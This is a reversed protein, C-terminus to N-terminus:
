ECSGALSSDQAQFIALPLEGPRDEYGVVIAWTGSPELAIPAGSSDEYRLGSPDICLLVEFSPLSTALLTAEYAAPYAVLREGSALREVFASADIAAAEPTTLAELIATTELGDAAADVTAVLAAGYAAHHELALQELDADTPRTSGTPTSVPGPASPAPPPQAVCGGVAVVAALVAVLALSRSATVIMRPVTRM